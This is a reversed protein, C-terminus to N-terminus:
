QMPLTLHKMGISLLKEFHSTICGIEGSSVAEPYRGQIIDSLDDERGDYASIREVNDLGWYDYQKKMYEGDSQNNM